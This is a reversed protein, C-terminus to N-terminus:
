WNMKRGKKWGNSLYDNLMNKAIKICKKEKELIIWCTGFQSNKEGKQTISNKTGIKIKTEESHKRDKWIGKLEGNKFREDDKSILFIKDFKDKALIMGKNIPILEGNKFREDNKYISYFNNDKDKCIIRNKLVSVFEGNKYREDDTNVKLINNNKDKVIVKNQFYFRYKDLNNYIHYFSGGGLSLNYYIDSNVIDENVIEREMKLMEEESDCFYLIIKEFNEVGYKKIANKLYKGSGMYFDNLNKTVHCGIYKKQNIKNTIEYIIYYKM